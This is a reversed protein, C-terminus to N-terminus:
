AVLSVILEARDCYTFTLHQAGSASEKVRIGCDMTSFFDGDSPTDTKPCARAQALPPVMTVVRSLVWPTVLGISCGIGVLDNVWLIHLGVPHPVCRSVRSHCGCQSSLM